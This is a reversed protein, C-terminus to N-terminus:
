EGKIVKYKRKRIEKHSNTNYEKNYYVKYGGRRDLSKKITEKERQPNKIMRITMVSVNYKNSLYRLTLDSNKELEKRISDKITDPIKKRKDEIGLEKLTPLSM